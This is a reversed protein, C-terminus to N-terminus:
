CMELSFGAWPWPSPLPMCIEAEREKKVEGELSTEKGDASQKM